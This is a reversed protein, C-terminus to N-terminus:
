LFVWWVLSALLLVMGGHPIVGASEPLPLTPAPSVTPALEACGCPVSYFERLSPCLEADVQAFNNALGTALLRCTAFSIGSVIFGAPIAIVADPITIQQGPACITCGGDPPPAPSVTPSGAEVCGCDERYAERLLQCTDKSFESPNSEVGTNVLSCTATTFGEVIGDPIDVIAHPKSLLRGPSCVSCPFGGNDSTSPTCGCEDQFENRLQTCTQANFETPNSKVASDVIACSAEQVGDVYGEPVQVVANPRSVKTGPQCVSCPYGQETGPGPTPAPTVASVVCGCDTQYQNRFLQCTVPTFESPNSKVINDMIGCSAETIGQVYGEPIQVITNKLSVEMGPPCVSCPYGDAPTSTPTTTAVTTPASTPAVTPPTMVPAKTVKGGDDIGGDTLLVQDMVHLLGNQAVVNAFEIVATDILTDAFLGSGKSVTLVTGAMTTLQLEDVLLEKYWVAPILHHKVITAMRDTDAAIAATQDDGLARFAANTPGLVTLAPENRVVDELGAQVIWGVLLDFGDLNSAAGLLSVTLATPLFVGDVKHVVGNEAVLDAQVVNSNAFSAGALAIDNGGGTNQRSVLLDEGAMNFTGLTAIALGNTLDTQMLAASSPSVHYKLLARLHIKWVTPNSLIRRITSDTTTQWATDTPAFVTLAPSARSLTVDMDAAFAAKEFEFLDNEASVIEFVTEPTKTVPSSTPTTAQDDGCVANCVSRDLVVEGEWGNPLVASFCDCEGPESGCADTCGAVRCDVLGTCDEPNASTCYNTVTLELDAANDCFSTCTIVDQLKLPTALFDHDYSSMVCGDPLELGGQIVTHSLQRRLLPRDASMNGAQLLLLLLLLMNKIPTTANALKEGM